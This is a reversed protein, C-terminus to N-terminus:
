VRIEIAKDEQPRKTISFEMKTSIQYNINDKEAKGCLTDKVAGDVGMRCPTVWRVIIVSYTVRCTYKELNEVTYRYM